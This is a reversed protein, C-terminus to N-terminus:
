RLANYHVPAIYTVFIEHRPRTTRPIYRLFWNAEDAPCQLQMSQCFLSAM